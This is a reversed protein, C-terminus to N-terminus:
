SFKLIFTPVHIVLTDGATFTINQSFPYVADRNVDILIFEENLTTNNRVRGVVSHDYTTAGATIPISVKVLTATGNITPEITMTANMELTDGRLRYRIRNQGSGLVYSSTSNLTVYPQIAAGTLTVWDGVLTGIVTNINDTISYLEDISLQHDDLTGQFAATQLGQTIWQNRYTNLDALSNFAIAGAVGSGCFEAHRTNISPKVSGDQYTVNTTTNVIRFHTNVTGGIFQIIEGAYVIVGDSATGSTINVGTLIVDGFFKGIGLFTEQYANQLFNLTDQEFPYGGPQGFDITNM